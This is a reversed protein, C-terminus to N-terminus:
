TAASWPDPVGQGSGLQDMFTNHVGILERMPVTGKSVTAVDKGETTFPPPYLQLGDALNLAALDDQWRPWRLTEYFKTIAGALMTTVFQAHGIELDEWTLNDVSFHHVSGDGKGFAGGDLAFAGGLVDYAVVLLGPTGASAQDLGPLGGNSSSGGLIRLWGHDILLGSTERALAGLYSSPGLELASATRANADRPLVAVDLPSASILDSLEAWANDGTNGMTMTQAM